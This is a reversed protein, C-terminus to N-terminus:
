SMLYKSMSILNLIHTVQFYRCFVFLKSSYNSTAAIKGVSGASMADSFCHMRFITEDFGTGCMPRRMPSAQEQGIQQKQRGHYRCRGVSRHSDQDSFRITAKPSHQWDAVGSNIQVADAGIRRQM